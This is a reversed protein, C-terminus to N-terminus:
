KAHVSSAPFEHKHKEWWKRYRSKIEEADDDGDNYRGLRLLCDLGWVAHKQIERDDSNFAEFLFPISPRDKMKGLMVYAIYHWQIEKNKAIRHLDPAAAPGMDIIQRFIPDKGSLSRKSVMKRFLTEVEEKEAVPPPDPKKSCASM